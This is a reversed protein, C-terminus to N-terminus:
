LLVNADATSSALIHRVINRLSPWETKGYYKEGYGTDPVRYVVDKHDPFFEEYLHYEVVSSSQTEELVMLALDNISYGNGTGINFINNNTTWAEEFQMIKFFCKVFMNVCSFSRVQFGDDYITLPRGTLALNIFTPVVMDYTGVQNAGIVNFPRVIMVKRGKKSAKLGIQEMHWKGCAYGIQGGDYKLLEEFIIPLDEKTPSRNAVGYVASSSFLVIPVDEFTNIVNSTGTTAIDYTLKKNKTALRMGVVSALHIIM